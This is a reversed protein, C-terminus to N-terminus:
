NTLNKSAICHIESCFHNKDFVSQIEDLNKGLYLYFYDILKQSGNNKKLYFLIHRYLDMADVGFRWSAVPKIGMIVNMTKISQETFLHTHGGSLQRPFVNKSINELMVSFSFMPVSYYLYQAKSNKFAKFFRHPQRLHEIVGIASIINASSETISQYFFENENFKLPTKNILHKIQNNGLGVMMKNIDIGKAEINRILSVYVFYGMGCGVDLIKLKNKPVNNMLFDLKPMYIQMARKNFDKDIYNKYYNKGGDSMYLKKVFKKTDEFEGNLHSCLNCFIYGINHSKFDITKALKTNCIKCNVRKKQQSYFHNHKLSEKLWEDNKNFFNKKIKFLFNLPKSYKYKLHM